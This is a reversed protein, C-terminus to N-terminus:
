QIQDFKQQQEMPDMTVVIEENMVQIKTQVEELVQNQWTIIGMWENFELFIPATRQTSTCHQEPM